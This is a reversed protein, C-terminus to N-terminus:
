HECLSPNLNKIAQKVATEIHSDNCGEPYLDFKKDLKNILKVATGKDCDNLSHAIKVGGNVIFLHNHAHSESFQMAIRYHLQHPNLEQVPMYKAMVSLCEVLLNFQEKPCKM